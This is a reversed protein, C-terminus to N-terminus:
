IRFKKERNRMFDMRKEKRLLMRKGRETEKKVSTFINQIGIVFM